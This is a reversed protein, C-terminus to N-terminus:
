CGKPLFDEDNSYPITRKVYGMKSGPGYDPRSGLPGHDGVKKVLFTWFILVNIGYSIIKGLNMTCLDM